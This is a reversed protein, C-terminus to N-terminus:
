QENGTSANSSSDYDSYKKRSGWVKSAPYKQENLAIKKLVAAPLDIRCKESLRLLYILVDSLEQSLHEKDENTWDDTDIVKVERKAVDGTETKFDDTLEQNNVSNIEEM